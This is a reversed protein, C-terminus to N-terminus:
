CLASDTFAARLMIRKSHIEKKEKGEKLNSSQRFTKWVLLHQVAQSLIDEVYINDGDGAAQLLTLQAVSRSQSRQPNTPPATNSLEWQNPGDYNMHFLPREFDDGPWTGYKEHKCWTIVPYTTPKFPINAQPNSSMLSESWETLKLTNYSSATRQRRSIEPPFVGFREVGEELILNTEHAPTAEIAKCMAEALRHMKGANDRCMDLLNKLTFPTFQGVREFNKELLAYSTGGVNVDWRAAKIANPGVIVGTKGNLEPKSILDTLVVLRRGGVNDCSIMEEDLEMNDEMWRYFGIVRYPEMMYNLWPNSQVNQDYAPFPKEENPTALLQLLLEFAADINTGEEMCAKFAKCVEIHTKLNKHTKFKKPIRYDWIYQRVRSENARSTAAFSSLDKWNLSDMYAKHMEEPLDALM